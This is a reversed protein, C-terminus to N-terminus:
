QPNREIGTADGVLPDVLATNQPWLSWVLTWIWGIGSWGAGINFAMIPLRYRHGRGFAIFTPTLYLALAALVLAFFMVTNLTQNAEDADANGAPESRPTFEPDDADAETSPADTITDAYMARGALLNEIARTDEPNARALGDLSMSDAEEGTTVGLLYGGNPDAFAFRCPNLGTGSCDVFEPYTECISGSWCPSDEGRPFSLPQYGQEILAARVTAYPSGPSLAQSGAQAHASTTAALTILLAASAIGFWALLHRISAGAM